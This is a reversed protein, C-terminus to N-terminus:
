SYALSNSFPIANTRDALALSTLLWGCALVFCALMGAKTWRGAVANAIKAAELDM